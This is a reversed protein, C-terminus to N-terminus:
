RLFALGGGVHAISVQVTPDALAVMDSYHACYLDLDGDGDIDALAMSM